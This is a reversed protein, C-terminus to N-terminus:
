AREVNALAGVSVVGGTAAVIRLALKLGPSKTGKVIECIYSPSVGVKKAFARQTVGAQDLYDALATM